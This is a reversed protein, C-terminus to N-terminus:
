LPFSSSAAANESRAVAAEAEMAADKAEATAVGVTVTSAPPPPAAASGELHPPGWSWAGSIWGLPLCCGVWAQGQHRPLPPLNLAM